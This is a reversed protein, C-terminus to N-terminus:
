QVVLSYLSVSLAPVTLSNSVNSLEKEEIVVNPEKGPENYAMPDSHAILGLRGTGALQAGKLDMTIQQQQATPNVIGITLAKHDETWAAAIDLALNNNVVDVPITGYHNRYLALPLGTTAFAAATKTAKVCGIVNVTQAYTALYMIDSQRYYEHLGAAIGLADQMFYRRGLEGYWYADTPNLKAGEGPNYNWYNWETLAVKIDKGKLSDLEQRLDRHYTTKQSIIM